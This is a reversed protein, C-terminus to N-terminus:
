ATNCEHRETARSLADSLCTHVSTSQHEKRNVSCCLPELTVSDQQCRATNCEHRETARYSLAVTSIADFLTVRAGRSTLMSLDVTNPVLTVSNSQGLQCLLTVSQQETRNADLLTLM